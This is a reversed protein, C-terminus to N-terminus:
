NEPNGPEEPQLYVYSRRHDNFEFTSLERLFPRDYYSRFPEYFGYRVARGVHPFPNVRAFVTRRKKPRPPPATPYDTQKPLRTAYFLPQDSSVEETNPIPRRFEAPPAAFRPPDKCPMVQDNRAVEQI